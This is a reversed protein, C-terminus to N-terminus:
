DEIEIKVVSPEYAHFQLRVGDASKEVVKYEISGEGTKVEVIMNEPNLPVMFNISIDGTGNDTISTVNNSEIFDYLRGSMKLKVYTGTEQQERAQQELPRLETVYWLIGITLGLTSVAILVFPAILIARRQRYRQWVLLGFAFTFVIFGIILAAEDVEKSTLWEPVNEIGLVAAWASLNSAAEEPGVGAAAM